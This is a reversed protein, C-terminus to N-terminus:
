ILRPGPETVVAAPENLMSTSPAANSTSERGPM